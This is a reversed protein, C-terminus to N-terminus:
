GGTSTTVESEIAIASYPHLLAGSCRTEILYKYKNFDIDFDDFFAVAGGRDAGIGYDNPNVIIANLKMTKATSGGEPTFTRTLGDMVPVEVIDRVRLATALEGMTKYIRYGLKDKALLMETLSRPDIYMVPNGSGKYDIRAVNAADIIANATEERTKGDMNGLNYKITYMDDDTWIPRINSENIKDDSSAIRGDGVLAARALEEYLKSRMEAKMWIVIDFDTIDIIDDRDLGQKKYVTTPTTSRKLLAFQEEIKKKGKIYGRARAEDKTIDATVSKIRSFPVKRLGNWFPMVWGQDRDIFTPTRDVTKAEPMLVDLNDIGHEICSEKLSGYKNADKFIATLEEHTITDKDSKGNRDFVNHILTEDEEHNISDNDPDEQDAEEEDSLAYGIMAYVANKQEDTMSDFIQQITKGGNEHNITDSDPKPMSKLEGGIQDEEFEEHNLELKYNPKIILEDEVDDYIGDGHDIALTEITAGPNAGAVVLSVERIMGHVVDRGNQKRIRNAHISMANIDGHTVLEKAVRGKETNNFVGYGYVGEGPRNELKVYGLINTPDDRLHHWVMPVTAGDCDTFAGDRIVLGDACQMDNRTVWGSFDYKM